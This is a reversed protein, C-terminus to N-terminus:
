VSEAWLHHRHTDRSSPKLLKGHPCPTNKLILYEFVRFHNKYSLSPSPFSIIFWSNHIYFNQLTYRSPPIRHKLLASFNRSIKIIRGKFFITELIPTFKGSSKRPEFCLKLRLGIKDRRSAPHFIFCMLIWDYFETWHNEFRLVDYWNARDNTGACEGNSSYFHPM